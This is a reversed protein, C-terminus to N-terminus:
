CKVDYIKVLLGILFNFINFFSKTFFKRVRNVPDTRACPIINKIVGTIVRKYESSINPKYTTKALIITTNCIIVVRRKSSAM